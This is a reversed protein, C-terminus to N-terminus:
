QVLDLKEAALTEKAQAILEQFNPQNRIKNMIREVSMLDDGTASDGLLYNAIQDPDRSIVQNTERSVLGLTPSWKLGYVKAISSLLIARHLGKFKSNPEGGHMAFKMWDTDGFMFDTQVFGNDADGLIPTRFHVSVGSKRIYNRADVKNDAAWSQLESVLTEKFKPDVALDLDGSTPNRGTSGLMNDTLSLGTVTELWRVTPVVDSRNIRQTAPSGDTNKFVNGGESLHQKSEPTPAPAGPPIGLIKNHQDTFFKQWVTNLPTNIKDQVWDGTDNLYFDKGRYRIIIPENSVVQVGPALGQAPSGSPGPAPSGSGSGGPVGTTRARDRKELFEAIRDKLYNQMVANDNINSIRPEPVTTAGAGFEAPLQLWSNAWNVLETKIADPNGAVAPNKKIQALRFSWKPLTAKFANDIKSQFEKQAAANARGSASFRAKLNDLFGESVFEDARM